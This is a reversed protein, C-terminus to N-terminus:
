GKNKLKFSALVSENLDKAASQIDFYKDTQKESQYEAYEKKGYIDYIDFFYKGKRYGLPENHSHEKDIKNYSEIALLFSDEGAKKSKPEYFVINDKIKDYAWSNPIKLTYDGFDVIKGNYEIINSLIRFPFEKNNSNRIFTATYEPCDDINNGQYHLYKVTIKSKNKNYKISKIDNHYKVGVIPM